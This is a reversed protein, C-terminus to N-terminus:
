IPFAWLYFNKSKARLAMLVIIVLRLFRSAISAKVQSERLMRYAREWIPRTQNQRIHRDGLASQAPTHRLEWRRVWPYIQDQNGSRTAACPVHRAPALEGTM